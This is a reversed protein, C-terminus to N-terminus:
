QNPKKSGVSIISPESRAGPDGSAGPAAGTLDSLSSRWFSKLTLRFDWSPM